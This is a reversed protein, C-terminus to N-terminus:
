PSVEFHLTKWSQGGRTDRIVLWVTAPGPENGVSWSNQTETSSSAEDESLGTQENEFHGRSAFWAVTIGERRAVVAQKEPDYSVYREAGTCGRPTLCDEACSTTDENATCFGDGCSSSSPCAEWKADLRVHSGASVPETAGENLDGGDRRTIRALQPNENIRYQQRYKISQDSAAGSLDCDIRVSGVSVQDGLRAIFPQYFGGTVDPDVPRGSPKGAEEAPRLPGFLRCADAPLKASVQTGNGLPLLADTPPNPLLCDQNVPGLQTLPKRALCLGFQVSPAEEGPPVAVLAELVSDGNEKAEAPTGRLALLQPQTIRSLDDDFDPVCATASIALLLSHVPFKRQMNM